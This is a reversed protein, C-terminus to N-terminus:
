NGWPSSYLCMTNYQLTNNLHASVRKLQLGKMERWGRETKNRGARTRGEPVAMSCGLSALKDGRVVDLEHEGREDMAGKSAKNSQIELNDTGNIIVSSNRNVRRDEGM